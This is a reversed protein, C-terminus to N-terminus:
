FLLRMFRRLPTFILITRKSIAHTGGDEYAVLMFDGILIFGFVIDAAVPAVDNNWTRDMVLSFTGSKTRGIKWVGHEITGNLTIKM